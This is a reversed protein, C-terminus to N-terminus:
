GAAVFAGDDTAGVDGDDATASAGDGAVVGVGFAGCTASGTVDFAAVDM